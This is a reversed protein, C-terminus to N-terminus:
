QNIFSVSRNQFLDDEELLTISGPSLKYNLYGMSSIEVKQFAAIFFTAAFGHTVVICDNQSDMIEDVVAQIRTAVERRSEAGDCIRHDMRTGDPSTPQMLKLHAAQDMGEHTGFSMERLRMDLLPEINTKETLIRATQAARKLDSSHVTTNKLDYGLKHLRAALLSAEKKGADTLESDYWGGVKGEASHTALCHTILAIRKM